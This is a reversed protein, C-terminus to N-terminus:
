ATKARLCPAPEEWSKVWGWKMYAPMRCVILRIQGIQGVSQTTAGMGGEQMAVWRRDQMCRAAGRGGGAHVTSCWTERRCAGYQLWILGGGPYSGAICSCWNLLSM